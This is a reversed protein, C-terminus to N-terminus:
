KNQTGTGRAKELLAVFRPDRVLGALDPQRRLERLRDYTAGDLLPLIEARRGAAELTMATWFIVLYETPALQAAQLAEDAALSVDGLKGMSYALRARSPADRANRRLAARALEGAKEFELRAEAPRGVSLLANGLNLRVGADEGGARISERLAAVAESNRGHMRLLVALNNM